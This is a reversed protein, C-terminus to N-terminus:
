KLKKNSKLIFEYGHLLIKPPFKKTYTTRIIKDLEISSINPNIESLKDIEKISRKKGSWLINKNKKIQTNIYSTGYNTLKSTVNVFLDFLKKHTKKLLSSVDDKKTVSFFEVNIIDGSDIKKTM